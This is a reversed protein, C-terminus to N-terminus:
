RGGEGLLARAMAAGKDLTEQYEAAPGLGGRHRRRGFLLGASGEGGADTDRHEPGDRRGPPHVRHQGLTCGAPWRSWNMSSEMSRIKPAGTISGGPFTAQLLDM